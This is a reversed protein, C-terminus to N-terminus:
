DSNFSIFFFGHSIGRTKTDAFTAFNCALM